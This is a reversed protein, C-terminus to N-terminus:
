ISNIRRCRHNMAGGLLTRQTPAGVLEFYTDTRRVAMHDNSSEQVRSRRLADPTPSNAKAASVSDGFSRAAAAAAARTAVPM